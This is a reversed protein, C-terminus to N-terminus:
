LPEPDTDLVEADQEPYFEGDWRADVWDDYAVKYAIPDCRFLVVSAPIDLGGAFCPPYIEDIEDDFWDKYTM